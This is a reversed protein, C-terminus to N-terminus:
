SCSKQTWLSSTCCCESRESSAWTIPLRERTLSWATPRFRTWAAGEHVTVLVHLLSIWITASSPPSRGFYIIDFIVHVFVLFCTNSYRAAATPSPRWLPSYVSMPPAFSRRSAPCIRSWVFRRVTTSRCSQGCLLCVVYSVSSDLAQCSIMEGRTVDHLGHLCASLQTFVANASSQCMADLRVGTVSFWGQDNLPVQPPAVCLLCYKSPLALLGVYSKLKDFVATLKKMDNQIECNKMKLAATCLPADCEEELSCFVHVGIDYERWNIDSSTRNECTFCYFDTDAKSLKPRMWVTM